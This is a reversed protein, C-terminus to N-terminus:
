RSVQQEVESELQRILGDKDAAASSSDPRARTPSDGSGPTWESDNLRREM